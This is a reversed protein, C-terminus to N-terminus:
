KSGTLTARSMPIRITTVAPNRNNTGALSLMSEAEKTSSATVMPPHQPIRLQALNAGGGKLRGDIPFQMVRKLPEGDMKERAYSSEVPPPFYAEWEMPELFPDNSRDEDTLSTNM